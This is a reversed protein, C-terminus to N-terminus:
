KQWSILIDKWSISTCYRSLTIIVEEVEEFGITCIWTIRINKGQLYLISQTM